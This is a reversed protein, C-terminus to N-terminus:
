VYILLTLYIITFYIIIYYDLIHLFYAINTCFMNHLM